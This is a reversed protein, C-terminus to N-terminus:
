IKNIMSDNVESTWNILFVLALLFLATMPFVIWGIEYRTTFFRIIYWACLSFPIGAAMCIGLYFNKKLRAKECYREGLILRYASIRDASPLGVVAAIALCFCVAIRGYIGALAARDLGIVLLIYLLGGTFMVALAGTIKYILLPRALRYAERVTDESQRTAVEDPKNVLVSRFRVVILVNYACLLISVAIVACIVIMKATDYEKVFLCYTEVLGYVCFFVALAFCQAAVATAVLKVFEARKKMYEILGSDLDVPEVSGKKRWLV